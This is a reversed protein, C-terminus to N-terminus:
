VTLEAKLIRVVDDIFDEGGAKDSVYNCYRKVEAVANFPCLSFDAKRIMEIDNDGDGMCILKGDFSAYQILANLATLKSLEKPVCDVWFLKTDIRTEGYSYCRIRDRYNEAIEPFVVKDLSNYQSISRVPLGILTSKALSRKSHIISRQEGPIDLIPAVFSDTKDTFYLVDFNSASGLFAYFESPMLDVLFEVDKRSMTTEYIVNMGGDVHTWALGGDLSIYYIVIDSHAESTLYKVPPRATAVVFYDISLESILRSANRSENGLEDFLTGDLDTVLMIPSLSM